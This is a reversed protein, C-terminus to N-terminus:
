IRNYGKKIVTQSFGSNIDTVTIITSSLAYAAGDAGFTSASAALSILFIIALRCWFM